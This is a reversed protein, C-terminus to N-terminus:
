PRVERDVAKNALEDALTNQERPIHHFSVKQFGGILIQAQQVLKILERNKISYIGKLQKILLESDSLVHIIKGNHQQCRTLGIILATYEAQNNTLKKGLYEFGSDIESGGMTTIVFGAGAPGPNGRACGDTFLKLETKNM